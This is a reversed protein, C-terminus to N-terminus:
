DKSKLEEAKHIADHMMAFAELGGARQSYGDKGLKDFATKLTQWQNPELRIKVQEAKHDATFAQRTKVTNEMMFKLEEREDDTATRAKGQLEVLSLDFAEVIKVFGKGVNRLENRVTVINQVDEITALDNPKCNLIVFLELAQEKSIQIQRM